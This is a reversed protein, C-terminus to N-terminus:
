KKLMCNLIKGINLHEKGAKKYMNQLTYVSAEDFIHIKM